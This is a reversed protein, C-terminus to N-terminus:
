IERISELADFVTVDKLTLSINGGVDPHLLVSYRTGSVIAQFVQKAPTNNVALDFKTEMPKNDAQPAMMSMPPLLAQDVAEPKAAEHSAVAADM